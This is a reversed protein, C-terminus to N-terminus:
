KWELQLAVKPHENLFDNLRGRIPIYAIKKGFSGKAKLILVAKPFVLRKNEVIKEVDQHPYRIHKFYNTVYIHTTDIEVRKLRLTFLYFLFIGLFYLM